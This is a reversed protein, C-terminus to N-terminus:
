ATRLMERITEARALLDKYSEDLVALNILPELLKLSAEHNGIANLCEVLHVALNLNTPELLLAAYFAPIAGDFRALRKCCLAFAGLIRSDLPRYIMMMQFVNCASDFKGQMFLSHGIGYIIEIQENSFRTSSPLHSIKERLEQLSDLDDMIRSTFQITPDAPLNLQNM